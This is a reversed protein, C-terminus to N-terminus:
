PQNSFVTLGLNAPLSDSQALVAQFQGLPLPAPPLLVMTLSHPSRGAAALEPSSEGFAEGPNRALTALRPVVANPAKSAKLLRETLSLDDYRLKAYEIRADSM